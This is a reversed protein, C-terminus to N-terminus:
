GTTDQSTPRYSRVVDVAHMLRKISKVSAEQEKALNDKEARLARLLDSDRCTARTIHARQVCLATNRRQLENLEKKRAKEYDTYIKRIDKIGQWISGDDSSKMEKSKNIIDQYVEEFGGASNQPEDMSTAQSTVERDPEATAELSTIKSINPINLKPYNITPDKLKVKKINESDFGPSLRRKRTNTGKYHKVSRQAMESLRDLETINKEALAEIDGENECSPDLRKKILNNYEKVSNKIQNLVQLDHTTNIQPESPWLRPKKFVHDSSHNESHNGEERYQIVNKSAKEHAKNDRMTQKRIKPSFHQKLQFFPNKDCIEAAPSYTYTKKRPYAKRLMDENQLREEEALAVNKTAVKLNSLFNEKLDQETPGYTEIINMYEEADEEEYDSETDRDKNRKHLRSSVYGKYVEYNIKDPTILSRDLNTRKKPESKQADKVDSNNSLNKQKCMRRKQVKDLISTEEPPIINPLLLDENFVENSRLLNLAINDDPESQENGAVMSNNMPENVITVTKATQNYIDSNMILNQNACQVIVNDPDSNFVQNEESVNLQQSNSPTFVSDDVSRINIQLMTKENSIVEDERNLDGNDRENNNIMMMKTKRKVNGLYTSNPQSVNKTKDIRNNSNRLEQERSIGYIQNEAILNEFDSEDYNHQIVRKLAVVKTRTNEPDVVPDDSNDEMESELRPPTQMNKPNSITRRLTVHLHKHPVDVFKTTANKNQVFLLQNKKDSFSAVSQCNTKITDVYPPLPPSQPKFLLPPSNINQSFFNDEKPRDVNSEPKQFQRDNIDIAEAASILTSLSNSRPTPLETFNPEKSAPKIVINSQIAVKSPLVTTSSTPMDLPNHNSKRMPMFTKFDFKELSKRRKDKQTTLSSKTTDMTSELPSNESLKAPSYMDRSCNDEFESSQPTEPRSQDDILLGESETDTEDMFTVPTSALSPIQSISFESPATTSSQITTRSDLRPESMMEYASTVTQTSVAVQPAPKCSSLPTSQTLPLMSEISCEPLTNQVSLRPQPLQTPEMAVSLEQAMVSTQPISQTIPIHSVSIINPESIPTLSSVTPVFKLHKMPSESSMVALNHPMPAMSLMFPVTQIVTRVAMPAITPLMPMSSMYQMAQESPITSIQPVSQVMPMHSRSTMYAKSSKKEGPISPESRLLHMQQMSANTREPSIIPISQALQQPGYEVAPKTIFNATPLPYPDVSTATSYPMSQMLPMHLTTTTTPESPITRVSQISQMLNIQPLEMSAGSPLQPISQMSAISQTHPMSSSASQALLQNSTMYSESTTVSQVQEVQDPMSQIQIVSEQSSTTTTLPISQAIKNKHMTIGHSSISQIPTERQLSPDTSDTPMLPTPQSLPMQQIVPMSQAQLTSSLLSTPFGPPVHSMTVSPQISTTPMLTMPPVLQMQQLLAGLNYQMAQSPVTHAWSHNLSYNATSPTTQKLQEPPTVPLKDQISQGSQISPMLSSDELYNVPTLQTTPEVPVSRMYHDSPLRQMAPESQILAISPSPKEYMRPTTSISMSSQDIPVRQTSSTFHNTTSQTTSEDLPRWIKAPQNPVSSLSNTVPMQQKAAETTTSIKAYKLSISSETEESSTSPELITHLTSQNSQVSSLTNEFPRYQVSTETLTTPISSLSHAIPIQHILPESQKTLVSSTSKDLPKREMTCETIVKPTALELPMGQKSLESAVFPMSNKRPTRQNLSESPISQVHRTQQISYETQHSQVSSTEENTPASPKTPKSPMSYESQLRQLFPEPSITPMSSMDQESFQSLTDSKTGQTSLESISMQISDTRSETDDPAKTTTLSSQSRECPTRQPLSETQTTRISLNPELLSEPISHGSPLIQKVTGKSTSTISYDFPLWQTSSETQEMLKQQTLPDTQMSPLTPISYRTIIRELLSRETHVSSAPSISGLPTQRMSESQITSMQEIPEKTPVVLESYTEGLRRTITSKSPEALMSLASHKLPPQQTSLESQIPMSSKNKELISRELREEASEKPVRPQQESHLREISLNTPVQVTGDNPEKSLNIPVAGMHVSHEYPLRDKSLNKPFTPVHIYQEHPLPEKFLDSRTSGEVLMEQTCEERQAPQPTSLSTASVDSSTSLMPTVSTSCKSSMSPSSGPLPEISFRSSPTERSGLPLPIYSPPSAGSTTPQSTSTNPQPASPIPYSYGPTYYPYARVLFYGGEMPQAPISASVSPNPNPISTTKAVAIPSHRAPNATPLHNSELNIPEDVRKNAETSTGPTPELPLQEQPPRQEDVPGSEEPDTPSNQLLNLLDHAVGFFFGGVFGVSFCSNKKAFQVVMELLEQSQNLAEKVRDWNVHIYGFESALHLLIISGGLGFASIKGVKYSGVGILWGSFTGLVLDRSSKKKNIKNITSDIVSETGKEDKKSLMRLDIDPIPKAM